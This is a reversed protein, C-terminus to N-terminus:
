KAVSVVMGDESLYAFFTHLVTYTLPNSLSHTPPYTHAYILPQTHSQTLAHNLSVIPSHFCPYILTHSPSYTPSHTHPHVYSDTPTYTLHTTHAHTELRRTASHTLSHILSDALRPREHVSKWGAPWRRRKGINSLYFLILYLSLYEAMFICLQYCCFPCVIQRFSLCAPWCIPSGLKVFFNNVSKFPSTSWCIQQNRWPRKFREQPWWM